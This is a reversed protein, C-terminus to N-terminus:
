YVFNFVLYYDGRRASGYMYNGDLYKRFERINFSKEFLTHDGETKIQDDAAAKEDDGFLKIMLNYFLEDKIRKLTNKNKLYYCSVECKLDAELENINELYFDMNISVKVGLYDMAKQISILEIDQCPEKGAISSFRLLKEELKERSEFHKTNIMSVDLGWDGYGRAKLKHTLIRDKSPHKNEFSAIEDPYPAKINIFIGEYATMEIILPIKDFSYVGKELKDKISM